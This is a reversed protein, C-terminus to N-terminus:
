RTQSRQVDEMLRRARDAHVAELRAVTAPQLREILGELADHDATVVYDVVRIAAVMEARAAAALTEDAHPLVVVLLPRGAQELERADAARLVDFWGAVLVLPGLLRSAAEVSVLKSRTDVGVRIGGM